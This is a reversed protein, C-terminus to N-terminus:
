RRDRRHGRGAPVDSRGDRKSSGRARLNALAEATLGALEPATEVDSVRVLSRTRIAQCVVSPATVPDPGRRGGNSPPESGPHLRRAGGFAGAGRRYRYVGGDVAGCLHVANRVIAEFVPQMDTQARSIVRLIDATATQRELAQGLDKNRAELEKFLRVNEIAIVAQSAFTELLAIEADTFPRMEARLVALNGLPKGESLLPIEAVSRITNLGLLELTDPYESEAVLQIDDIIIRRRDLIARGGPFGRTLPLPLGVLGKMQSGAHAANYFRDGELREIVADSAECLRVAQAAIADLVPQLDTPSEAIIRLVDATATQRDLSETLEANKAQLETFLRVNEIAIVAQDAFTRLLAIEKDSFRRVERRRLFLVGIPVGERLLPMAIATRHGFRVAIAHGLPFEAESEAATLDDVHVTRADVVARGAVWGRQVPNTFGVPVDEAGHVAAVKLVEGEVLLLFTHAAECLRAASEVLTDLVPQLDAPSSAIVRLIEGTATQQTLAEGLDHNRAELENFLRVNEIAIVAQAAFTELLAVQRATFPSIENRVLTIVGLSMDERLLPVSLTTGHGGYQRQLAKGEPFDDDATAGVDHVHVTCRDIFARGSVSGRTLPLGGGQLIQSQRVAAAVPGVSAAVRLSEGDAILIIVDRAHCLAAGSRVIADFVPQASTPSQSIVRLIEATATQQELSETLERNRTQLEALVRANEIAIVAQDAFAQLLAVAEDSFGGVARHSLAIAGIAQGRRLLPVAILSGLGVRTVVGPFRTDAPFDPVHVVTGDLVAVGMPFTREPPRPFSKAVRDLREPAVNTTLSWISSRATM